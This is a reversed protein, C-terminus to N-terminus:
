KKEDCVGSDIAKIVGVVQAIGKFLSNIEIKANNLHYNEGHTLGLTIAPIKKSLFISLESGSPESIPKLDLKKMIKVCAKVLPHNYKLTSANTSSITKMTMDVQYEHRLGDVIDNIDRYIENVMNDSDSQIELGLRADYAIIGHKFGGFIKGIIVRARPRQPLRLRLVRNIVENLILIANPKFRQERGGIATSIDCNIDCRRIGESYYNLRGLEGGEVCVAGRIPTEWNDLLQRIGKLNGKGLSHIVGALIIDSEFELKLSRLIEPMSILVGVGASNDLAGPGYVANKKITFNHDVEKDIFTDLHAVMFIPPKQRSTGRIIGIPNQFDDVTCEDVQAEALREMFMKARQSEQFTPAPIQGVLVINALITEQISKIIDIYSTVDELFNKGM